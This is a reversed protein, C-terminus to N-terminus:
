YHWQYNHWRVRLFRHWRVHQIIIISIHSWKWVAHRSYILLIITTIYSWKIWRCRVASAITGGASRISAIPISPVDRIKYRTCYCIVAPSLLSNNLCRGWTNIAPEYMITNCCLFFNFLINRSKLYPFSTKERLVQHIRIWSKSDKKVINLLKGWNIM